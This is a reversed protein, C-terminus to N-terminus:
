HFNGVLVNNLIFIKRPWDYPTEAEYKNQKQEAHCVIITKVNEDDASSSDHIPKCISQRNNLKM